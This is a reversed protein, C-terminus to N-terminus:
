VPGAEWSHCPKNISPGIGRDTAGAAFVWVLFRFGPCGWFWLLSLVGSFWFCPSPCGALLVQALCASSSGNRVPCRVFAPVSM